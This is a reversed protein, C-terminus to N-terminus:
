FGQEFYYQEAMLEIVSNEKEHNNDVFQLSQTAIEAYIDGAAIKPEWNNEEDSGAGPVRRQDKSLPLRGITVWRKEKQLEAGHVPKLSQVHQPSGTICWIGARRKGM